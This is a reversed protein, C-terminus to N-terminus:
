ECEIPIPPLLCIPFLLVCQQFTLKRTCSTSHVGYFPIHISLINSGPDSEIPHAEIEFPLAERLFCMQASVQTLLLSSSHLSGHPEGPLSFLLRLPRSAHFAHVSHDPGLSCSPLHCATPPGSTCPTRLWSSSFGPTHFTGKHLSACLMEGCRRKGSVLFSRLVM